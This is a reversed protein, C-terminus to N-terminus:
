QPPVTPAVPQQAEAEQQARAGRRAESRAATAEARDLGARTYVKTVLYEHRMSERGGCRYCTFGPWGVYGGMGACRSCPAHRGVGGVTGSKGMDAKAAQAEPVPSGDRFFLATTM